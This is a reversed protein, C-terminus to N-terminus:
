VPSRSGAGAKDALVAKLVKLMANASYPKAIFHKVGANLTRAVNGNATLGSAAIMKVKPNIRQLAAILTPGDMIPMMMDTLVVAIENRHIAYLGIAQAGDEASMVKYGFTELTQKTIDLISAEDDVVMILEGNGRPFNEEAHAAAEAAVGDALAPLYVKFTSGKGPESYVNVFGGHSRVIGLVTSLGLGTGKGVEKTTFFPEFIRDVIEKPMGCGTDTVQIMVYRGPTVGRNMVAYQADMEVNAATVELGGGEPMADRANVCLNVVVQNLQTPDATILWLDPTFKVRFEINKPFTNAMISEVERLIHGAQLAVRSGEVGRAFSLVQKVLGAGRQASREINDIVAVSRPNPDFRRLLDVGMIIPALLNNLDHAIGGALTGISEMRQARLFQQEIKKQETINTDFTLISKPQGGADRLLTWRADITLREGNKTTKEVEGVWEGTEQVIRDFEAFRAVDIRYLECVHRGLAEAATWGYLREAGKSWFTIHHQLDRVVIADRAEDILAAQEALRSENRRQAERVRRSESIDRLYVALGQPSPYARVELWRDHPGYYEEFQVPVNERMAREYERKFANGATEPFETWLVQGMLEARSRQIMREAESNVYTFCWDRDFTVFGDTLTELTATLREASERAAEKAQHAETNDRAVCFMSQDAESWWASWMIHTIAGDKRVYRNVFSTTPHGAMIDAAAAMTLAQDEPLVKELYPTGLLEEPRYGWIRECAASVQLFRGEADFACIADLSSDFIKTMRESIRRFREESERLAAEAQKRETIDVSVGIIGTLQGHVDLLPSNAVIAPFVRGDRNQVLFEGSWTEGQELRAMIEQAQQRSTQPVTIELINRGLMEEPSWGYLLGAFSNAYIVRGATDTAIVARGIHDLMDAQLRMAELAQRQGTIDQVQSIFHLPQGAADRILSVSLHAWVLRGQQHLYRKDMEYAETTGALLEGMKALDAELDEPHTITAFTRALLEAETYGLIQCLARNVKLYRGEPSVLAVGVAAYEFANSFQKESARLASEAQQRQAERQQAEMAFSLDNAVAIMLQVEDDQFCGVERAFLVLAGITTEGLKLPFSATSGFGHQRARDCWPAMRPDGAFDNCVDHNGTRLATGITGLSLIGTEKTIALDSLYDLGAGASAVPRIRNAAADWEAIFAMRIHGDEVAIRCVAEFLAQRDRTRVIAEGTKSLVTHLRNLRQLRLDVQKRATIDTVVSILYNVEGAPSREVASVLQSWVLGGDKRRYRKETSYHPLEGALMARLAAQGSALDEPATLDMFTRQRLEAPSYGLIECLKDNVRLFRGEPSVHAIGVAAQEFTGRFREESERLAAEVEALRRALAAPDAGVAPTPKRTPADSM